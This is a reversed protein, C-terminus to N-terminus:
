TTRLTHIREFRSRIEFRESLEGSLGSGHRVLKPNRDIYKGTKSKKPETVADNTLPNSATICHPIQSSDICNKSIKKEVKEALDSWEQMDKTLLFEDDPNLNSLDSITETVTILYKEDALKGAIIHLEKLDRIMSAEDSILKALKLWEHTSIVCDQSDGQCVNEVSVRESLRIWEEIYGIVYAKDSLTKLLTRGDVRNLYSGNNSIENALKFWKRINVSDGEDSSPNESNDTKINSQTEQIGDNNNLNANALRIFEQIDEILSRERTNIDSNKRTFLAQTDKFYWHVGSAFNSVCQALQFWEFTNKVFKEKDSITGALQIWKRISDRNVSEDDYTIKTSIFRKSIDKRLQLKESVSYSVQFWKPMNAMLYKKNTVENALAHSCNKCGCGPSFNSM